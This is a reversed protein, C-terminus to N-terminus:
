LKSRIKQFDAVSSRARHLREFCEELGSIIVKEDGAPHPKLHRVALVLKTEASRVRHHGRAIIGDLLKVYREKASGQGSM